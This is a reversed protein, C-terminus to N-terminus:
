APELLRKGIECELCKRQDCFEKKLEILAQSGAANKVSIGARKRGKMLHNEEAPMEQLWRIAKKLIVQDPVMKGYTYLLPIISNIISYDIMRTGTNKIRIVSPKDFIYHEHWYDNDWLQFKKRLEYM